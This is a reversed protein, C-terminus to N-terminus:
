LNAIATYLLYIRTKRNIRYTRLVDCASFRYYNYHYYIIINHTTNHLYQFYRFFIIVLIINYGYLM